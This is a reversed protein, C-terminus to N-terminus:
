LVPLPVRACDAEVGAPGLHAAATGSTRAVCAPAGAGSALGIALSGATREDIRGHWRAPGSRGADRLAVAPPATRSGP